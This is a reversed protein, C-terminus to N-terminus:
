NWLPGGLHGSDGPGRRFDKSNAGGNATMLKGPHWVGIVLGGAAFRAPRRQIDRRQLRKCQDIARHAPPFRPDFASESGVYQGTLVRDAAHTQYEDGLVRGEPPLHDDFDEVLRIGGVLGPDRSELFLGPDRSREAVRIDNPHNKMAM